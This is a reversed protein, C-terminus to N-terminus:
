SSAQSIILQRERGEGESVSRMDAYESVVGHVVRRDAANMRVVKSNGTRRIEEIWERVQKTLKDARQKKYDAIDVNVRYIVADNNRLMTSVLYQISRLTEANRGILISNVDTSPVSLEIFDDQMHVDVSVNVGFFTLIDELYQKAHQISEQQDM